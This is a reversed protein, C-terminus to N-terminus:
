MLYRTGDPATFPSADITGGLDRQCVFPEDREDVFPGEPDDAVAAGVCQLDSETERSTYYLVYGDGTDLVSPAWVRGPETWSPLDPLADGAPLALLGLGSRLVPVNQDVTNTTYLHLVAGDTLVFPDAYDGEFLPTDPVPELGNRM